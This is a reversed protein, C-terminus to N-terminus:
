MQLRPDIADRLAEGLLNYASVSLFMAAGPFVALWWAHTHERVENLLSGWSAVDDPVGFGLFSLAGELVVAGAMSFSAAVLVPSLVNPLVHRLLIQRSSLGLGRAAEVYASHRVRLVEARVLRSLDTWRVAGIVCLMALVAGAGTPRLVGLVTVLLLMTPVAHLCDALRMLLQDVLGGFYGACMGVLLGIGSLILVSALGVSLSIRTGHVVRALVDRGSRDTGLPHQASPASLMAGLDHTNQGWPSLPMLAWDETTLRAAIRQNDFARLAAPRTLCPLVHLEGDLRLALPLDSALLDAGLATVLLASLVGLAWRARGARLVRRRLSRPTSRTDPLTAV